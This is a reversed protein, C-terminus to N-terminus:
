QDKSLSSAASDSVPTSNLSVHKSGKSGCFVRIMPQSISMFYQQICKYLM